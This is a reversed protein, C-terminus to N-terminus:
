DIDIGRSKLINIRDELHDIKKYLERIIKEKERIVESSYIEGSKFMEILKDKFIESATHVLIDRTPDNLGEADRIMEGDGTLLWATNLDPYKVTIRVLKQPQISNRMSSVYTESVGVSRCFARVSMNRYKIYEILREKVAM